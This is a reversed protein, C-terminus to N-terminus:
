VNESHLKKYIESALSVFDNQKQKDIFLDSYKKIASLVNMKNDISNPTGNSILNTKKTESFSAINFVGKDKLSKEILSRNIKNANYSLSIDIKVISENLDQIKNIEKIIFSNPDEDKPVEISIKKLNRTPLKEYYFFSDKDNIIAIKKEQESEGFNSIDMSGIHAVYPNINQMVQHKHVHGMWVYDYGNFMSVPCFLENTMDCIEDGIPISGEIALHGVVIKKCTLPISYLEYQLSEQLFKLANVNYDTNFSKRDRFPILTFALNNIYITDINKYVYVGDIGSEMIIDLPSLYFNGMRLIDHNGAILHINVGNVQCKKLWSIFHTIILFSPRPDEFIDGTIIIDNVLNDLARDLTWDLLNLQDVFRSNLHTGLGGKGINLGKGLHVDGLIIVSM